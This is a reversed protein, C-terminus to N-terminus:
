IQKYKSFIPFDKKIYQIDQHTKPFYPCLFVPKKGTKSVKEESNAFFRLRKVKGFILSINVAIIPPPLM